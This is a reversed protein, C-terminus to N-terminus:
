FNVRLKVHGMHALSKGQWSKEYGGGFEFRDAAITIGGGVTIQGKAKTSKQKIIIQNLQNSITQTNGKHWVVHNYNASIEPIVTFSNTDVFGTAIIGAVISAEQPKTKAINVAGDKYAKFTVQNYNVGLRPSVVFYDTLHVNYLGILSAGIISAKNKSNSAGTSSANKISAWGYAINGNLNFDDSVVGSGYLSLINSSIKGKSIPLSGLTNKTVSQGNSYSVGITSDEDLKTDVGIIVGNLKSKSNLSSGLDNNTKDRALGFFGKLWLGYDLNEDGSSIGSSIGSDIRNLHNLRDHTLANINGLFNNLQQKHNAVTNLAGRAKPKLQKVNFIEDDGFGGGEYLLQFHLNRIASADTIRSLVNRLEEVSMNSIDVKAITVLNEATFAGCSSGDSQQRTQLDILEINPDIEKLVQFVLAGNSTSSLPSGFSDNYIVKIKGVGASKIALAVWHSNGFNIPILASGQTKAEAVSSRVIDTILEKSEFPLAPAIYASSGVRSKLVARIDDDHYWYGAKALNAPNVAMASTTLLSLICTMSLNHILRNTGTKKKLRTM